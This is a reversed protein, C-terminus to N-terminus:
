IRKLYRAVPTLEFGMSEYTKRAPEHGPDGGTEVMALKFGQKKIMALSEDMLAKGIGQQQHDPDVGIMYVEGLFDDPHYKTSSFGVIKGGEDAVIVHVEPTDCISNVSRTQEAKWDPVFIEYIETSMSLEMKKFVPAWARLTIDLIAAKDDPTYNRIQM